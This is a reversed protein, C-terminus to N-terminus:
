CTDAGPTQSSYIVWLLAHPPKEAHFWVFAGMFFTMLPWVQAYEMEESGNTPIQRMGAKEWWAVGLLM